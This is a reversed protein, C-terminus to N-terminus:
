LDDVTFLLEPHVEAFSRRNQRQEERSAWRVNGPEYDGNNDLRDLTTGEPREGVDTIFNRVDLWRECVQIGRGGYNGYARHEPNRCRSLMSTWTFFLPHESLGHDTLREIMVKSQFESRFCGCSSTRGRVLQSLGVERLAGCDCTVLAGRNSRDDKVIRVERVITWRGFRQGPTVFIKPAPGRAM